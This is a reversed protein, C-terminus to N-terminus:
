CQGTVVQSLEAGGLLANWPCRDEWPQMHTGTVRWCGAKAVFLLSILHILYEQEERGKKGKQFVVLCEM